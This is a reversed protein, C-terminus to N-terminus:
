DPTPSGNAPDKCRQRRRLQGIGHDLSLPTSPRAAANVVGVIDLNNGRITSTSLCYGFPRQRTAHATSPQPTRRGATPSV